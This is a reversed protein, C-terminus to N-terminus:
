KSQFKCQKIDKYYNGTKENAPTDGGNDELKQFIASNEDTNNEEEDYYQDDSITM